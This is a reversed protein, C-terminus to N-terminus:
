EKNIFDFADERKFGTSKIIGSVIILRESLYSIPAQWNGYALAGNVYCFLNGNKEVQEQNYLANFLSPIRVSIKLEILNGEFKGSICLNFEKESITLTGQEANILKAFTKEVFDEM